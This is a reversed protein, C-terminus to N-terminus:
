RMWHLIIFNDIVVEKAIFKKINDCVFTPNKVLDYDGRFIILNRM